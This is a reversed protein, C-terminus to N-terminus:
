TSSPGFRQHVEHKPLAGEFREEVTWEGPLQVMAGDPRRGQLGAVTGVGPETPTEPVGGPRDFQHDADHLGSRLRIWAPLATIGLLDLQEDTPDEILVAHADAGWRRALERLVTPAPRCPACWDAWVLVIAPRNCALTRVQAQGEGRPASDGNVPVPSVPVRSPAGDAPRLCRPRRTRLAM